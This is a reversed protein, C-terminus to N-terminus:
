KQMVFFEYGYYKSYKSYFDIENRFGEFVGLATENGEYKKNLRPLEKEIPLYYSNFWASEPLRFNSILKFGEKQIAEIKVEINKIDPYEEEFYEIVADPPNDAIYVLETM